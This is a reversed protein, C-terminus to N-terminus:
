ISTCSKHKTVCEEISVPTQAPGFCMCASIMFSIPYMYYVSDGYTSSINYKLGLDLDFSLDQGANVYNSLLLM